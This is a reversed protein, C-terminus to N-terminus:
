LTVAGVNSPVVASERIPQALWAIKIDSAKANAKTKAESQSTPDTMEDARITVAFNNLRPPTDSSEVNYSFDWQVVAGLADLIKSCNTIEDAM